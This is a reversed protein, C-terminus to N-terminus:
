FLYVISIIHSLIFNYFRDKNCSDVMINVILISDLSLALLITYRTEKLFVVKQIIPTNKLSYEYQRSLTRDDKLSKDLFILQDSNYYTKITLIYNARLM